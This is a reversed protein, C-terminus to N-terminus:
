QVFIRLGSIYEDSWPTETKVVQGPVGDVALAVADGYENHRDNLDSLMVFPDGGAWDARWLAAHKEGDEQPASITPFAIVMLNAGSNTGALLETATFATDAEKLAARMAPGSGMIPRYTTREWIYRGAQLPDEIVRYMIGAVIATAEADFMAKTAALTTFNYDNVLPGNIRHTNAVSRGGIGNAM